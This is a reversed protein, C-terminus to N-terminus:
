GLNFTLDRWGDEDFVSLILGAEIEKNLICKAFEVDELTNIYSIFHCNHQYERIPCAVIKRKFKGMAKEKHTMSQGFCWIWKQHELPLMVSGYKM